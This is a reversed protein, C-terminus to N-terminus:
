RAGGDYRAAAVEAPAASPEETLAALRSRARSLRSRVTGVPVGVAAAIEDYSLEEWAFLLLVQREAEPLVGIADVVRAW